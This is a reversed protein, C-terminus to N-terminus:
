EKYSPTINRIGVLGLLVNFNGYVDLYNFKKGASDYLTFHDGTKNLRVNLVRRSGAVANYLYNLTVSGGTKVNFGQNTVLRIINYGSRRVVVVGDSMVEEIPYTSDETVQGSPTTAIFRISDIDGNDYTQLIFDTKENDIDSAIKAIKFEGAFASFSLLSIFYLGIITKM